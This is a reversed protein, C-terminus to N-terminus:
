RNRKSKEFLVFDEGGGLGSKYTQQRGKQSNVNLAANPTSSSQFIPGLIVQFWPWSVTCGCDTTKQEIIMELNIVEEHNESQSCQTM